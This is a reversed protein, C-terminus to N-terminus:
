ASIRLVATYIPDGGTKSNKRQNGIGHAHIRINSYAHMYTSYTHLSIYTHVATYLSIYLQIYPYKSKPHTLVCFFHSM